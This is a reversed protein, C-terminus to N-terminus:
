KESCGAALRLNQAYYLCSRKETLIGCGKTGPLGCFIGADGSPMKLDSGFATQILANNLPGFATCCVTITQEDCTPSVGQSSVFGIALATLAISLYLRM